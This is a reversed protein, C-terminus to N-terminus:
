IAYRLIPLQFLRSKKFEFYADLYYAARPEDKIQQMSFQPTQLKYFKKAREFIGFDPQLIDNYHISSSFLTDKPKAYKQIAEETLNQYKGLPAEMKTKSFVKNQSAPLDDFEFIVPSEFNVIGKAYRDGRHGQHMTIAMIKAEELSNFVYMEKTKDHFKLLDETCIGHKPTVEKLGYWMLTLFNPNFPMQYQVVRLYNDTVAYRPM